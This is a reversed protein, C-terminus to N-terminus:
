EKIIGVGNFRYRFYQFINLNPKKIFYVRNNSGLPTVESVLQRNKRFM